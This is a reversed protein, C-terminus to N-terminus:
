ATEVNEKTQWYIVLVSLFYPLIIFLLLMIILRNQISKM